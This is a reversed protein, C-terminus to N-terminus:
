EDSEGEPELPEPMPIEGFVRQFDPEDFLYADPDPTM